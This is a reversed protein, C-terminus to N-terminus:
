FRGDYIGLKKAEKLTERLRKVVTFIDMREEPKYKWCEYMIEIMQDQIYNQGKYRPDLFALNGNILYKQKEKTKNDYMEYLPWLGTILTYINNGYSWVDIKEDLWDDRFEEPARYDGAGKGNTYKCYKGKQEDFLMFEARNFDNLILRGDPAFLYQALQVDDHVIVGDKYGHLDALSEAMQLAMDLKESIKYDNHSKLDEEIKEPLIGEGPIINEEAEKPLFESYVSFACHGYIDAIRPSSTLREMVIADMRIFELRDYKFPNKRYRNVKVVLDPDWREHQLFADRYAGSGLFRNEGKMLEIEHFTNCSPFYMRHIASRRCENFHIERFATGRVYDDDFAYYEEWTSDKEDTWDEKTYVHGELEFPDDLIVRPHPYPDKSDKFTMQLGGYDPEPSDILMNPMTYFNDKMHQFRPIIVNVTDPKYVSRKTPLVRAIKDFVHKPLPQPPRYKTPFFVVQNLGKRRRLKRTKQQSIYKFSYLLATLTMVFFTVQLYVMRKSIKGNESATRHFKWCMRRLTSPIKRINFSNKQKNLRKSKSKGDDYKSPTSLAHTDNDIHKPGAHVHKRSRVEAVM